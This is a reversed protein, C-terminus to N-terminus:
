QRAFQSNMFNYAIRYGQIEIFFLPTGITGQAIFTLWDDDAIPQFSDLNKVVYITSDDTTMTADKTFQYNVAFEITVNDNPTSEFGLIIKTLRIPFPLSQATYNLLSADLDHDPLQGRYSIWEELGSAPTKIGENTYARLIQNGSQITDKQQTM